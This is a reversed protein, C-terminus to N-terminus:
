IELHCHSMVTRWTSHYINEKEERLIFRTLSTFSHIQSKGFVIVILLITTIIAVGLLMRFLDDGILHINAEEKQNKVITSPIVFGM